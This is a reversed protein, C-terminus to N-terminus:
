FVNWFNHGAWRASINRGPERGAPAEGDLVTLAEAVTEISEETIPDLVLQLHTAGAAAM